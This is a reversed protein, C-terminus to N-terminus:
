GRFEMNDDADRMAATSIGGLRGASADEAPM